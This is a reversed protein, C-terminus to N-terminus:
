GNYPRPVCGGDTGQVKRMKGRAELHLTTDKTASVVRCAKEMHDWCKQVLELTAGEEVGRKNAELLDQWTLKETGPLSDLYKHAHHKIKRIIMEIGSETSDQMRPAQPISQCRAVPVWGKEGRPIDRRDQRVHGPKRYLDWYTWTHVGARDNALCYFKRRMKREDWCIQRRLEEHLRRVHAGKTALIVRLAEECMPLGRFILWNQHEESVYHIPQKGDSTQVFQKVSVQM